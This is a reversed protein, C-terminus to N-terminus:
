ISRSALRPYHPEGRWGVATSAAALRPLATLEARGGAEPEREEIRLYNALEPDDGRSSPRAPDHDPREDRGRGM